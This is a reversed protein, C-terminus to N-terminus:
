KISKSISNSVFFFLIEVAFLIVIAIIYGNDSFREPSLCGLIFQVIGIFSFLFPLSVVFANKQGTKGLAGILGFTIVIIVSNMVMNFVPYATLLLGILVNLLLFTLGFYVVTKKM